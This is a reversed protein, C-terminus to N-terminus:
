RFAPALRDKRRRLAILGLAGVGMLAWTAPEPVGGPSPTPPDVINIFGYSVTDGLFAYATAVQAPVSGGYASTFRFDSPNTNDSGGIFSQFTSASLLVWAGPPKDPKLVPDGFAPSGSLEQWTWNLPLAAPSTLYGPKVEPIELAGIPAGLPAGM